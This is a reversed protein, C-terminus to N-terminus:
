DKLILWVYQYPRLTTTDPIVVQHTFADVANGEQLHAMQKKDSLNNLILMTENKYTRKYAAIANTGADLWEFNGWGFAYHEKRVTIM